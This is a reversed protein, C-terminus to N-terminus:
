VDPWFFGLGFPVESETEEGCSGCAVTQNTSLFPSINNIVTRMKRSDIAPLNEFLQNLAAQDSIGNVSVVARKFMNVTKSNPIGLKEAKDNQESLFSEDETTLLRVEVSLGTKPLQFEFLNTTENMTVGDPLESKIEQISIDYTFDATKGCAGCPAQITYESGYGTIRAAYMIATRDAPLFHSPNITTDVLVSKLLRDFVSGDQIFQPNALIDEERATMHKIEVQSVGHLSSGQEYFRGGSPLEVVETAAVLDIGFPNSIKPKPVPALQPTPQAVTTRKSNRSM